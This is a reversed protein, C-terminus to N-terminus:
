QVIINGNKQEENKRDQLNFLKIIQEAVNVAARQEPSIAQVIPPDFDFTLDGEGTERKSFTVILKQEIVGGILPVNNSKKVM